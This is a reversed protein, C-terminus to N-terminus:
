FHEAFQALLYHGLEFLTLRPALLFHEIFHGKSEAIFFCLAWLVEKKELFCNRGSMKFGIVKRRAWFFATDTGEIMNEVLFINGHSPFRKRVEETSDRVCNRCTSLIMSISSRARFKNLFM